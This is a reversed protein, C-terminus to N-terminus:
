SSSTQMIIGGVQLIFKAMEKLGIQVRTSQEPKGM